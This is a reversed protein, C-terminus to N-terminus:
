PCASAGRGGAVCALRCAGGRVGLGGDRFRAIHGDHGVFAGGGEAAVIWCEGEEPDVPPTASRGLAVAQTLVDLRELAENHTVHKQAQSPLIHPLELSPTATM